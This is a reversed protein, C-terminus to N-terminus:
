ARRSLPAPRIPGRRGAAARRILRRGRAARLCTEASVGDARMSERPRGSGTKCVIFFHHARCAGSEAPTPRPYEGGAQHEGGGRPLVSEALLAVRRLRPGRGDALRVIEALQDAVFDNVARGDVVAIDNEVRRFVQRPALPHELPWVALLGVEDGFFLRQPRVADNIVRDVCVQLVRFANQFRHLDPRGGRRHTEDFAGVLLTVDLKAAAAATRGRDTVAAAALVYPERLKARRARHLVLDAVREPQPM